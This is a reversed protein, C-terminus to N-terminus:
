DTTKLMDDDSGSVTQLGFQPIFSTSVSDRRNYSASFVGGHYCKVAKHLRYLSGTLTSIQLTINTYGGDEYIIVRM